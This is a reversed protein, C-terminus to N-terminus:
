GLATALHTKGTGTGGVLILNHASDLYEGGALKRVFEASLPSEQWEFTMLDRHHPFRASKMQYRLSRSHRDAQEADLLKLLMGENSLSQRGAQARLESWAQAMGYLKLAKL